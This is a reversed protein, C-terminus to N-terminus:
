PHAYLGMMVRKLLSPRGAIGKRVSSYPAGGSLRWHCWRSNAREPRGEFALRRENATNDHIAAMDPQLARARVAIQKASEFAM